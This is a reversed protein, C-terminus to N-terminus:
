RTVHPSRQLAVFVPILREEARTSRVEHITATRTYTCRTGGLVLVSVTGQAAKALVRM